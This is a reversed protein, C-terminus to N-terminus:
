QFPQWPFEFFLLGLKIQMEKTELIYNNSTMLTLLCLFNDILSSQKWKWKERWCTCKSTSKTSGSGFRSTKPFFTPFGQSFEPFIHSFTPFVQTLTSLLAFVTSFKSSPMRSIPNHVTCFRPTLTRNSQLLVKLILLVFLGCLPFFNM